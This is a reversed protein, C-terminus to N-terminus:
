KACIPCLKTFKHLSWKLLLQAPLQRSLKGQRWSTLVASMYSYHIHCQPRLYRMGPSPLQISQRYPSMTQKSMPMPLLVPISCM